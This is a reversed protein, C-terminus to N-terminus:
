RAVAHRSVSANPPNFPGVSYRVLCWLAEIGHWPRLKKGEAVGRAAYRVPVEMVKLGLRAVKATFEPCFGFGDERLDLWPIVDSRFAKYCTAEDSLPLGTILTSACTLMRNGAEHWRSTRLLGRDMFRSGFVVDAREEAIPEVLCPYDAPDYEMDADQVVVYPAHIEALGARVAAGKGRNSGNSRCVVRSDLRAAAKILAASGDCSGDDVIVLQSVEPRALVQSVIRAITAEENFVPMVVGLCRHLGTGGAMTAMSPSPVARPFLM